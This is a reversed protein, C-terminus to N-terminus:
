NSKQGWFRRFCRNQAEFSTGVDIWSRGTFLNHGIEEVSFGGGAVVFGASFGADPFFFYDDLIDDLRNFGWLFQDVVTPVFIIMAPMTPFNLITM